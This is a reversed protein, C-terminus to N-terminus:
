RPFEGTRMMECLTVARKGVQTYWRSDKMEKAATAYDSAALAALMRRFGLFRSIGLNFVLEILVNQRVENHTRWRPVSRDLEAICRDIDHDLMMDAEERTIGVDDLNRGIGITTKGATCLYPKLIVGEHLALMERLKPINM